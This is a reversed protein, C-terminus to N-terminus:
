PYTPDFKTAEALEELAVDYQGREFYGAALDTHLEAKYRPTAEEVKIPPLQQQLSQQQQPQLSESRKFPGSECAALAACVLIAALTTSRM